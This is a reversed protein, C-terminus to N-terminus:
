GRRTWRSACCSNPPSSTACGARACREIFARAGARSAQDSVLRRVRRDRFQRMRRRAARARAPRVRGTAEYPPDILILGRREPPPLLAGCRRRATAGICRSRRRRRCIWAAAHAADEPHLECASWGTGRACCRRPDARALRSVPRAQRVLGVYDALAAPPDDLLRRSATAGNAPASRRAPPCITAASAPM